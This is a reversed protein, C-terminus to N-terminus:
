EADKLERKKMWESKEREYTELEEPTLQWERCYHNFKKRPIKPDGGRVPVPGEWDKGTKLRYRARFDEGYAAEMESLRESLKKIGEEFIRRQALTERCEGHTARLAKFWFVIRDFFKM